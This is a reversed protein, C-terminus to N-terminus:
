VITLLQSHIKILDIAHAVAALHIVIDPNINEILSSIKHYNRADEVILSVKNERM